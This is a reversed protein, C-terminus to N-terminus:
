GAAFFRAFADATREIGEDDIDLHTVLRVTPLYGISIRIGAARLHADLDRLRAVPVDIFVMNTHQGLVTLGDIARLREALRAARAHDDALRDIHHDLAYLGAAALMGAQRWGGGCVKRWRRAKDILARSGVLVSGVPAGLGKSLCVSVTDFHRAIERAPVGCAVAANFLRAGDLHYGLGRERALDGAARLYDLPLPRGHWTNELALLRTRAFHPDVPKIAAALRDLPLSGDEAQVIPQPQISGLVAAGGGEFKYTHAGMGVLYEDGRECHSLLALLNSQTGTPVFLGAEFGLMAALREQLANVTPDEGYVDDGVPAAQMAERMAATPQTVTDSRLDVVHM